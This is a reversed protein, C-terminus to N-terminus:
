GAATAEPHPTKERIHDYQSTFWMMYDRYTTAPYRAPNDESCCTPLCTMPYDYGADFFFPIAYRDRGPNRNIARHPTSLFRHNTWRRLMDGSNVLFADPLVPADMWQGDPMRISLGPLESQALVTLFSSDTHPAVGYQDPEGTESPPYHSLRLTYMPDSFAEDFFDPSLDLARAYVPLMKTCLDELADCYGLAAERFHPVASPSPWQNLGRFRLGAVVDPHAPPIDRKLFMAEVLNPQTAKEVSSSRSVYGNVPMYGINHENAKLALKAELPQAHFARCADFVQDIQHQPVGHGTLYYFGVNELADRLQEGLLELAGAEGALYPAANLIPIGADSM